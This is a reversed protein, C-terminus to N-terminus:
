RRRRIGLLLGLGLLLAAAPEPVCWTDIVVQDIWCAWTQPGTNYGWDLYIREWPPNPEIILDYASTQWGDGHDHAESVVADIKTLPVVPWPLDGPVGSGAGVYFDMVGTGMFTVQIRIRKEPNPWDYNLLGFSVPGFGGGPNVELVSQRGALEDMVGVSSNWEAVGVIQAPDFGGPNADIQSGTAVMMGPGAGSQGWYDWGATITGPNDRWDPPLVDDARAAGVVVVCVLACISLVIIHRKM